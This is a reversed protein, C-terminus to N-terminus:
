PTAHAPQTQMVPRLFRSPQLMRGVFNKKCVIRACRHFGRRLPLAPRASSEALIVRINASRRLPRTAARELKAQHYSRIECSSNSFRLPSGVEPNGIRSLARSAV